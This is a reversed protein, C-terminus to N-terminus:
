DRIVPTFQAMLPLKVWTVFVKQDSIWNDQGGCLELDFNWLVKCMVLRAMYLAM